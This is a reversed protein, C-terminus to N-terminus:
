CPRPLQLLVGLHRYVQANFAMGCHSGTVDLNQAGGPALARPHRV